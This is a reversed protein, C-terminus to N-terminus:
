MKIKIIQTFIDNVIRIENFIKENENVIKNLLSLGYGHGKNKTTYGKEFIKNVDFSEKIRNSIEIIFCKDVYMSIIIERKKNEFKITEEIANDLIIGVIRCIDYNMKSSFNVINIYRVQKAVDLIVNICKEQMILMKQYILGQLGGTPIRKTKAYIIDNDDRKENVIEDIYEILKKNNKKVMSKIILLQNKNEHNNIRQYDLMKEYEGLTKILSEREEVFFLNKIKEKLLFSFILIYFVILFSNFLLGKKNSYDDYIFLLLFNIIIILLLAVNYKTFKDLKTTLILIKRLNSIIIKVNIIFYSILCIIVNSILLWFSNNFLFDINSFFTIMVVSYLFESIFIIIQTFFNIIIMKEFSDLYSLKSLFLIIIISVFFKYTEDSFINNFLLLITMNLILLIKCKKNLKNNSMKDIIYIATVSNILCPILYLRIAELM